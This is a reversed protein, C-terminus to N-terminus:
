IIVSSAKILLVWSTWNLWKTTYSEQPKNQNLWQMCMHGVILQTDEAIQMDNVPFHIMHDTLEKCIGGNFGLIAYSKLEISRAYKLANIINKSNGSGSLVILLDNKSAKVELQNSYINDYGTDNALCTLIASNASLAEVNLGAIRNRGM